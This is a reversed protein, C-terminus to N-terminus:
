ATWQRYNASPRWSHWEKRVEEENTQVAVHANDTSQSMLPQQVDIACLFLWNILWGHIRYDKQVQLEIAEDSIQQWCLICLMKTQRSSSHRFSKLRNVFFIPRKKAPSFGRSCEDEIIVSHPPPPSPFAWPREAILITIFAFSQKGAFLIWFIGQFPQSINKYWVLM